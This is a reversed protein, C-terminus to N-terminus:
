VGEDRCTVVKGTKALYALGCGFGCRYARRYGAGYIRKEGDDQALAAVKPDVYGSGYNQSRDLPIAGEKWWTPEWRHPCGNNIASNIERAQATM